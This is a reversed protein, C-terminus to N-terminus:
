STTIPQKRKSESKEIIFGANKLTEFDEKFPNGSTTLYGGVVLGNAGGKLAKEQYFIGLNLEKGGALKINAKPHIFRYVAITKIIETPDLSPEKELPTGPRPNLINIPVCSPSYEKLCFAMSIRDDRTEGLGFIGGSCIEVSEEKLINLTEIRKDYTHTSVIEPYHKRSCQLNSNFRRLGAEKLKRAQEKTLFGLSGDLNLDKEKKLRKFMELIKEFEENNLSSGSTVICFDEVGEEELKKGAFVVEEPSLLTYRSVETNYKVSQCCFKCDEKCLYSKANILSCLEPINGNFRLTIEHASNLLCNIENEKTTQLLFLSEESTIEEGNLVREKLKFIQSIM